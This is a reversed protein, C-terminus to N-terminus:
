VLEELAERLRQRIMLWRQRTAQPTLGVYDAIVRLSHGMLWLSVIQRETPNRLLRLLEDLEVEAGQSAAAEGHEMRRLIAQAIPSDEGEIANLRRMVRGKDIIATDLMKFILTWFQPNSMTNLRGARVYRDLRRGLTSLLEQSDFLRRMSPSLKGRVRRRIYPGYCTLFQAVAERDGARMRALLMADASATERDAPLSEGAQSPDPSAEDGNQPALSTDNTGV